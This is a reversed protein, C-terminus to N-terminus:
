ICVYDIFIFTAYFLNIIKIFLNYSKSPLMFQRKFKEKKRSINRNRYFKIFKWDFKFMIVLSSESAFPSFFIFVGYVRQRHVFPRVISTHM